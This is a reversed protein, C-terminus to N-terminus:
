SFIWLLLLMTIVLLDVYKKIELASTLDEAKIVKRGSGFHAKKKIKGFYSTDGGLSVGIYNAMATIPHGANPSEHRSGEKYFSFLTHNKDHASILLASLRSPIYNLIDDLRAAIKGYNEYRNNRYGVMSDM